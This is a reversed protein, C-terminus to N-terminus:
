HDSSAVQEAYASASLLKEIEAPDSVRIKLMWGAGYPDATMEDLADSLGAHVEVVEGSVPAYIDSAAKVSEIEAVTQGAEIQEGAELTVEVDIIDGLQEIAFGSIGVTAIDNELKLWEHTERFRLEQPFDSM